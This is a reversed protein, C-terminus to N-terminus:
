KTNCCGSLPAHGNLSSCSSESFTNQEANSGHKKEPICTNGNEYFRSRSRMQEEIELRKEWLLLTNIQM